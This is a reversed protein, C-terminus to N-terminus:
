ASYTFFYMYAGLFRFSILSMNEIVEIESNENIFNHCYMVKFM